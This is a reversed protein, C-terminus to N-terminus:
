LEGGGEIIPGPVGEDNKAKHAKPDSKPPLATQAEGEYPGTPGSAGMEGADNQRVIMPADINRRKSNYNVGVKYLPRPDDLFADAYHRDDIQDLAAEATHDYKFEMIYVVDKLELIADARGISSEVEPNIRAGLFKCFFLFMRKAEAEDACVWEYPVLAFAARLTKHLLASRRPEAQASAGEDFRAHPNGACPKGHSVPTM